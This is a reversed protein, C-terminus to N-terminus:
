NNPEHTNGGGVLRRARVKGVKGTKCSGCAHFLQGHAHTRIEFGSDSHACGMNTDAGGQEAM